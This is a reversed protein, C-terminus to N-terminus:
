IRDAAIQLAKFEIENSDWTLTATSGRPLILPQVTAGNSGGPAVDVGCGLFRVM